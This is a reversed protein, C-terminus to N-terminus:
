LSIGRENKSYSKLISNNICLIKISSYYYNEGSYDSYDERYMNEMPLAMEVKYEEKEKKLQVYAEDDYSKEIAFCTNENASVPLVIPTDYKRSGENWALSKYGIEGSSIVFKYDFYHVLNTQSFKLLHISFYILIALFLFVVLFLGSFILKSTIKIKPIYPIKM